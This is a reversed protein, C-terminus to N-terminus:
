FFNKPVLMKEFEEAAKKLHKSGNKLEFTGHGPFFADVELKGLKIVSAAYHQLNCDHTAILGITGGAFVTDGTFAAKLGDVEGTFSLHGRAQSPTDLVKLTWRGVQITDGEGVRRDIPCAPFVYDAPYYGHKRAVDLSIAKEDAHIMADAADHSCIVQVGPNKRWGAAGGAHDAHYHTLLVYRLKSFDHGDKIINRKIAEHDRGGGADILAAETGGDVWYVHCDFADSLGFGYVGSGVLSISPTLKM